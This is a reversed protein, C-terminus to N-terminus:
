GLTARVRPLWWDYVAVVVGLVFALLFSLVESGIAPTNVSGLFVLLALWSVLGFRWVHDYAVPSDPAYAVVVGVVLGPLFALAAFQWRALDITANLITGTTLALLIACGIVTGVRELHDATSM